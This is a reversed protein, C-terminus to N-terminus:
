SAAVKGDRARRWRRFVASVEQVKQQLRAHWEPSAEKLGGEWVLWGWWALDAEYWGLPSQIRLGETLLHGLNGLDEELAQALEVLRKTGGRGSPVLFMWALAQRVGCNEANIRERVQKKGREFLPLDMEGQAMAEDLARDNWKEASIRRLILTLRARVRGALRAREVKSPDRLLLRETHQILDRMRDLRTGRGPNTAFKGGDSVLHKLLFHQYAIWRRGAPRAAEPIHRNMRCWNMAKLLSEEFLSVRRLDAIGGEKQRFYGRALAELGRRCDERGAATSGRRQLMASLRTYEEEGRGLLFPVPAARRVGRMLSVPRASAARRVGLILRRLAAGAAAPEVAASVRVAAAPFLPRAVRGLVSFAVRWVM